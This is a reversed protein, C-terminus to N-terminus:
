EDFVTDLPYQILNCILILFYSRDIGFHRNVPLGNGHRGSAIPHAQGGSAAPLDGTFMLRERSSLGPEM